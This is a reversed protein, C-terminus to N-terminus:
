PWDNRKWNLWPVAAALGADTYRQMAWSPQSLCMRMTSRRESLSGKASCSDPSCAPTGVPAALCPIAPARLRSTSLRNSPPAPGM